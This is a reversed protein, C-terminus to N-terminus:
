LVNAATTTIIIYQFNESPSEPGENITNPPREELHISRIYIKM